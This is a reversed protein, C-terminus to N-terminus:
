NRKKTLYTRAIYGLSALLISLLGSSIIIKLFGNFSIDNQSTYFRILIMSLSLVIILPWYYKNGAIKGVDIKPCKYLQYLIAIGGLVSSLYKVIKYFYFPDGFFYYRQLFFPISKVFYGHRATFSDWLLHTFAGIFVSYIVISWNKKFYNLWNSNKYQMLRLKLFEPSNVILLDRIISHFIISIFIAMPIDFWFLGPLTHSYKSMTDYRIFYEIDPIMSGAILGTVSYWRRPFYKFPIILAPHSFTFGM